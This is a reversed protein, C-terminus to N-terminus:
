YQTSFRTFPNVYAFVDRDLYPPYSSVADSQGNFGGSAHSNQPSFELSDRLLEFHIEFRCRGLVVDVM